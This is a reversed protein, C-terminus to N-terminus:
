NIKTIYTLEQYRSVLEEETNFASLEILYLDKTEGYPKVVREIIFNKFNFTESIYRENTKTAIAAEQLVMNAQQEVTISQNSITNLYILVGIGFAISILVIATLTEVITSAKLRQGSGVALQRSDVALKKMRDM